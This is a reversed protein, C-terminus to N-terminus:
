KKDKPWVVIAKISLVDLWGFHRSDTSIESKDGLLYVENNKIESLRKIKERGEHDFIVIDGPKLKKYYRWGIVFTGPPLVPLM